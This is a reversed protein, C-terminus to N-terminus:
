AEAARTLSLRATELHTKMMNAAEEPARNRICDLIECHQKNYNAIIEPGLTLHRMRTWEDQSRVSTIQDIIWILLSNRTCQALARHFETDAESFVAPDDFNQEMRDCLTQMHDFEHRRGNLVALRCIHPELAFRADILELPSATEIPSPSHFQDSGIVYTGSGRRVEVVNEKALRGLAERVTGRAVGYTEALARESPLRDNLLYTGGRIEQLILASLEPSGLRPTPDTPM